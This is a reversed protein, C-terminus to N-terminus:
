QHVRVVHLGAIVQSTHAVLLVLKIRRNGRKFFDQPPIWAVDLSFVIQAEAQLGFTPPSAARAAYRFAM